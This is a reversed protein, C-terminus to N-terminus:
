KELHGSFWYLFISKLLGRGHVPNANSECGLVDLVQLLDTSVQDLTSLVLLELNLSRDAHRGLSQADGGALGGASLTGVGPVAELHPDVLAEDVQMRWSIHYLLDGGDANLWANLNLHGDIISLIESWGSVDTRVHTQHV